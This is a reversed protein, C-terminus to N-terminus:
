ARVRDGYRTPHVRAMLWKRTDLHPNRQRGAVGERYAVLEGRDPRLRRSRQPASPLPPPRTLRLAKFVKRRGRWSVYRFQREGKKCNPINPGPSNPWKRHRHRAPPRAARARRYWACTAPLGRRSPARAANSPSPTGSAAPRVSPASRHSPRPSRRINIRGILGPTRGTSRGVRDSTAGSANRRPSLAPESRCLALDRYGLLAGGDPTPSARRFSPPRGPV